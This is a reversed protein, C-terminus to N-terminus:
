YVKRFVEFFFYDAWGLKTYGRVFYVSGGYSFEMYVNDGIKKDAQALITPSTTEKVKITMKNTIKNINGVSISIRGDFPQCNLPVSNRQKLKIQECVREEGRKAAEHNSLVSLAVVNDEFRAQPSVRISKQYLMQNNVYIELLYDGDPLDSFSFNGKGDLYSVLVPKKMAKPFYLRATMSPPREGYDGVTKLRGSLAFTGGRMVFAASATGAGSRDLTAPALILAALVSIAVRRTLKM